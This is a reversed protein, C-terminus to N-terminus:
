FYVCGKKRICTYLVM